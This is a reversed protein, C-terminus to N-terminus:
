ENYNRKMYYEWAVKSPYNTLIGDFNGNTIFEHIFDPNDLTWVFARVNERHMEEVESKLTGLTWRPAWIIANVQRVESLGLECLALADSHEPHNLFENLIDADPLGIVIELTRGADIAKQTYEKQIPILIDMINSSKTDLWVLSLNTNYIIVDLAERLTPLPSGDKLTCFTRIQRFSYSALPGIMFDSNVLRSSFYEDHFIVPVRDSTLRVDIEVANCGFREAMQLIGLSNESFPLMDSTRGGGRHGIVWFNTPERKLPKLLKFALRFNPLDSGDGYSGRLILTAPLTQGYILEKGGENKKITLRVLGTQSNLANRWYGEFIVLSDLYGAQLIMYNMSVSTYISLYKGNWKAVIQNGFTANGELVNFIAELRQKSNDSLQNTESLLGSAGFDPVPVILEDMCSTLIFVFLCFLPIQKM